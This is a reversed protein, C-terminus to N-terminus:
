LADLDGGTSVERLRKAMYVRAFGKEQVRGIEVFGLHTYLANNEVMLVHTYLQLTDFGRRIAEPEAFAILARGVGKGQAAPKVAVNDLLLAGAQKDEQKDERAHAQLVVVGVIEGDEDVVWVQGDAIRRAYDDRMPGPQMGIREVYHGYADLVLARVADADSSTAPRIRMDPHITSLSLGNFFGETTPVTVV